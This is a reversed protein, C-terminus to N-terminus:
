PSSSGSDSDSIWQGEQLTYTGPHLGEPVTVQCHALGTMRCRLPHQMKWETIFVYLVHEDKGEILDLLDRISLESTLQDGDLTSRRWAMADAALNYDHDGLVRELSNANIWSALTRGVEEALWGM